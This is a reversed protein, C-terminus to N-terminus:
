DGRRAPLRDAPSRIGDQPRSHIRTYIMTTGIDRHGLLRQVARADHGADLVHSAFSHRLTRCTAPKALRARLVAIRVAREIVTEHLHHRHRRRTVPHRYTRTAPFVWQWSWERSGAPDAGDPGDPLDVWGAGRSVDVEHLRRALNFQRALDAKASAPLITVRDEARPGGRVTIADGAFDVDKIRLRCCEILRLGAGYLLTAMLRAAGHMQDLLAQVERPTLM